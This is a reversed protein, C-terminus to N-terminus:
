RDRTFGLGEIAQRYDHLRAEMEVGSEKAVKVTRLIRRSWAKLDKLSKASIRDGGKMRGLEDLIYNADHYIQDHDNCILDRKRRSM